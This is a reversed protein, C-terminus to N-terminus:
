LGGNFAAALISPSLMKVENATEDQLSKIRDVNAQISDLYAVIERQAEVGLEAPFQFALIARQNIKQINPNTGKMARKAHERMRPSRLWYICFHADARLPDVQPRMLLNAAVWGRAEEPVVGANGVQDAKNGRAIIIDGPELRDKDSFTEDGLGYEVRSTDVGFGTVASPMLVPTGAWEPDTRFV